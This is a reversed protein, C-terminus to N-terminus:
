KERGWKKPKREGLYKIQNIQWANQIREPVRMKILIETNSKNDYNQVPLTIMNPWTSFSFYKKKDLKILLTLKKGHHFKQICNM